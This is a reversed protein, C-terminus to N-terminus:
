ARVAGLRPREGRKIATRGPRRAVVTRPARGAPHGSVWRSKGVLGIPHGSVGQLQSLGPTRCDQRLGLGARLIRDM